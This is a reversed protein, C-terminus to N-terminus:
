QPIESLASMWLYRRHPVYRFTTEQDFGPLIELQLVRDFKSRVIVHKKAFYNVAPSFAVFTKCTDPNLV